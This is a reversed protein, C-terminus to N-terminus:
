LFLCIFGLNLGNFYYYGTRIIALGKKLLSYFFNFRLLIKDLIQVRFIVINHMTNVVGLDYTRNGPFAHVSLIHLKFAIHIAKSLLM